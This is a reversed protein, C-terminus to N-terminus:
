KRVIKWVSGSITLLYQEGAADEGFSLINGLDPFTWRQESFGTSPDGSISRLFSTCFDSYLYQGTLFPIASGRYAFGGSISCGQSHDYELAPVHLGPLACPELSPYCHKGEQLSWGYNLGSPNNMAVNIEEYAQQGVDAIYLDARGPERPFTRFDFRFPNRLGKAWIEPTASPNDVDLRLMKGLLSASNQANRDPDGGGGGDGTAFYLRGDPGFMALGGNHNSYTPHPVTVLTTPTPDAVDAGPVSGFREIRINGSLDTDYVYFLGNSAYSPHFAMSLLGREGGSSIRSSIDLFPTALLAGNKFIKIRGAQEVIFLRSDGAPATLFVPDSMGSVVLQPELGAIGVPVSENPQRGTVYVQFTFTTSASPLQFTWTKPMVNTAGSPIVENYRFFPQNSATFSGTGDPNVITVGNTPPSHFFVRVANADLTTGDATGLPQDTLNQVTVTSSLRNTGSDFSNSVAALRVYINQGGLVRNLTLQDPTPTTLDTVPQSSCVLETANGSCSILTLAATSDLESPVTADRCGTIAGALVSLLASRRVFGFRQSRNSTHSHM